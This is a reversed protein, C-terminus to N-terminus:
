FLGQNATTTKRRYYPLLSESSALLYIIWFIKMQLGFNAKCFIIETRSPDLTGKIRSDSPNVFPSSFLKYAFVRKFMSYVSRRETKKVQRTIM